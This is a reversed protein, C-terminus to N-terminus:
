ARMPPLRVSFRAGGEQAHGAEITGGLRTVLGYVIALGLGTGVQRVGRYRQYLASREFAVAIDEDSLGPGGDRIEVCAWGDPDTRVALVIPAGGPTVRLANEMLGDLVQRLRAADTWAWAPASQLVFRVGVARCRSDWVRAAARALDALDVPGFELRFNQADLRARMENIAQEFAHQSDIRRMADEDGVKAFAGAAM